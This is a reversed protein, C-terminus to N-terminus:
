IEVNKNFKDLDLGFENIITAGINIQSRIVNLMKEDIPKSISFELSDTNNNILVYFCDGNMVYQITGKFLKELELLKQLMVPTLYYYAQEKDNVYTDYKKNFEILETELKEYGHTNLGRPHGEIVKMKYTMAKKFDIKIVRGAFYKEYTVRRNGKSDRTVHREEFIADCLEYAVGNYSCSIHDELHYRDPSQYVGLRIIETLNIGSNSQYVAEEGLESKIITGLVNEKINKLFSNKSVSSVCILVIGVILGIVFLIAQEFMLLLFVGLFIALIGFVNMLISNRRTKKRKEEFITFDVNM